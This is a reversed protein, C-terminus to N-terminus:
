SAKSPNTSYRGGRYRTFYNATFPLLNRAFYLLSSSILEFPDLRGRWILVQAAALLVASKWLDAESLRLAGSIAAFLGNLFFKERGFRRRGPWRLL